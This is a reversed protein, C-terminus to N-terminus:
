HTVRHGSKNRINHNETTSLTTYFVTRGSMLDDYSVQNILKVTAVYEINEHAQGVQYAYKKEIFYM